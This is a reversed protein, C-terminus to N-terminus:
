DLGHQFQAEYLAIGRNLHELFTHSIIQLEDASPSRASELSRQVTEGIRNALEEDTLTLADPRWPAILYFGMVITSPIAIRGNKSQRWDSTEIVVMRWNLRMARPMSVMVPRTVM